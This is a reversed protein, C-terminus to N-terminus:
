FYPYIYPFPYYTMWPGYIPVLTLTNDNSDNNININIFQEIRNSYILLLVNILLMILFLRM